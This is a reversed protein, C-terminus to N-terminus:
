MTNVIRTRNRETRRREEARGSVTRMEKGTGTGTGTEAVARSKTGAETGTGMKHEDIPRWGREWEPEREAGAGTGM